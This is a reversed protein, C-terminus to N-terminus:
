MLSNFQNSTRIFIKSLLGNAKINDKDIPEKTRKANISDRIKLATKADINIKAKIM